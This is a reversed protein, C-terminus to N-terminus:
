QQFYTVIYQNCTMCSKIYKHHACIYIYIHGVMKLIRTLEQRLADSTGLPVLQTTGFFNLRLGSVPSADQGILYSSQSYRSVSVQM